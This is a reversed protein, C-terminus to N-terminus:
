VRVDCAKIYQVEGEAPGRLRWRATLLLLARVFDVFDVM